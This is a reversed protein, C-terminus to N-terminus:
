RYTRKRLLCWLRQCLSYNTKLLRPIQKVPLCNSFIGFRKIPNYKFVPNFFINFLFIVSNLCHNATYILFTLFVCYIKQFVPEAKQNTLVTRTGPYQSIIQTEIKRNNRYSFTYRWKERIKRKEDNHKREPIYNKLCKTQVPWSPNRGLKCLYHINCLSSRNGYRSQQDIM